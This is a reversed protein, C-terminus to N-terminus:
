CFFEVKSDAIVYFILEGSYLDHRLYIKQSLHKKIAKFLKCFEKLPHLFLLVKFPRKGSIDESGDLM